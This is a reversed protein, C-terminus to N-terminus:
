LTGRRGHFPPADLGPRGLQVPLTRHGSRLLLLRVGSSTGPMPRVAHHERGHRSAQQAVCGVIAPHMHTRHEVGPPCTSSSLLYVRLQVISRCTFFGKSPVRSRPFLAHFSRSKHSFEGIMCSKERWLSVLEYSSNDSRALPGDHTQGPRTADPGTASVEPRAPATLPPDGAAHVGDRLFVESQAPCGTRYSAFM